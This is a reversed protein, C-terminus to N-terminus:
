SKTQLHIQANKWEEEYDVVWNEYYCIEFKAVNECFWSVTARDFVRQATMMAKNKLSYSWLVPVTNLPNTSKNDHLDITALCHALEVDLETTGQIPYKKHYELYLFDRLNAASWKNKYVVGELKWGYICSYPTLQAFIFELHRLLQDLSSFVITTLYQRKKREFMRDRSAMGLPLDIATMKLSDNVNALRLLGEGTAEDFTLHLHHSTYLHANRNYAMILCMAQHATTHM